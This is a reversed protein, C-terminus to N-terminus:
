SGGAAAKKGRLAAAMTEVNGKMEVEFKEATYDGTAVHSLVFVDAGADRRVVELLPAPFSEESFLVRVQEKRIREIAAALEAASPVLGHAPEVVGVVEIGFEQMLYAYGDHVTVVRAVPIEALERAADAKIRRLRRAYDAANERLKPGLEPRLRELARAIAYTQQIANTFSLFTHSNVEEGHAGRLTPTEDSPRIVVIRANGSAEIMPGIFDDHGQGNVVIADLDALRRIEEPRPQYNGADVEGPLVSRVEVDTGKVVNSAWSFYPHLTVGVKLPAISPAIPAAEAPARRAPEAPSAALATVAALTATLAHSPRITPIM